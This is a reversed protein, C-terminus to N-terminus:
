NLIKLYYNIWCIHWLVDDDDSIEFKYDPNLQKLKLIGHKIITLTSHVELVNKNKWTVHINQEINNLGKFLGNIRQIKLAVKRHATKSQKSTAKKDVGFIEYDRGRNMLEEIKTVDDEKGGSYRTIRQYSTKRGRSKITQRRRRSKCKIWKRTKM